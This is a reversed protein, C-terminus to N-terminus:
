KSSRSLSPTLWEQAKPTVSISVFELYDSDYNLAFELRGVNEGQTEIEVPLNTFESAPVDIEPVNFVVQSQASTTFILILTLLCLRM